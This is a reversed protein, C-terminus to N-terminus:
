RGAEHPVDQKRRESGVRVPRDPQHQARPVVREVSWAASASVPEREPLAPAPEDRAVERPQGMLAPQFLVAAMMTCVLALAM